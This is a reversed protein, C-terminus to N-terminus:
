RMVWPLWARVRPEAPRAGMALGVLTGDRTTAWLTASAFAQARWPGPLRWRAVEDPRAPDRLDIRVLWDDAITLLLDHGDVLPKGTLLPPGPRMQEFEIGGQARLRGSTAVDFMTLVLRTPSSPSRWLVTLLREHLTAGGLVTGVIPVTRSAHAAEGTTLDIATLRSGAGAAVTLWLANRAVGIVHVLLNPLPWEAEVRPATPDRPDIVTVCRQGVVLVWPESVVVEARNGCPLPIRTLELPAGPRSTDIVHVATNTPLWYTEGHWAGGSSWGTDSTTAEPLALFGDVVPAGSGSTDLRTLGGPGEALLVDGRVAAGTVRGIPWRAIGNGSFSGASVTTDMLHVRVPGAAVVRLETSSREYVAMPGPGQDPMALGHIEKWIGTNADRDLVRVLPGRDRLLSVLMFIRDGVVTTAHVFSTSDDPEHVDIEHWKALANAAAADFIMLISGGQVIVLNSDSFAIATGGGDMLLRLVRPDAQEDFDTLLVRNALYAAVRSGSVALEAPVPGSSNDSFTRRAVVRPESMNAFDLWVLEGRMLLAAKDGDAGVAHPTGGVDMPRVDHPRTPDRGDLWWTGPAAGGSLIIVGDAVAALDVVPGPLVPTRGLERPIKGAVDYATVRWGRGVWAMERTGDVAIAGVEGGEIATVSLGRVEIATLDAPLPEGLRILEGQAAPAAHASTAGLVLAITLTLRRTRDILRTVVTRHSGKTCASPPSAFM